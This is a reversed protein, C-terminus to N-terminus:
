PILLPHSVGNARMVSFGGVDMVCVPQAASQKQDNAFHIGIHWRFRSVTKRISQDSGTLIEVIEQHRVDTVGAAAAITLPTAFIKEYPMQLPSFKGISILSRSGIVM